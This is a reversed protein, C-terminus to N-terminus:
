QVVFGKHLGRRLSQNLLIFSYFYIKEGFLISFCQIILISDKLLRLLEGSWLLVTCWKKGLSLRGHGLKLSGRSCIRDIPKPTAKFQACKYIDTVSFHEM